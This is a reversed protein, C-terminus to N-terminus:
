RDKCKRESHSFIELLSLVQGHTYFKRGIASGGEEPNPGFTSAKSLSAQTKAESYINNNAQGSYSTACGGPEHGADPETRM